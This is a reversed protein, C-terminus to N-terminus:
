EVLQLKKILSGTVPGLPGTSEAFYMFRAIVSSHSNDQFGELFVLALNNFSLQTRGQTMQTPSFLPVMIVRASNEWGAYDGTCSSGVLKKVAGGTWGTHNPNPSPAWCASPDQAILSDIGHATPGVMDGPKNPLSYNTGVSVGAPNCHGINWQYWNAGPGPSQGGYAQSNSSDYPMVFPYFFSPTGAQPNTIKITIPRGYDDWYLTHTADSGYYNNNRWGSGLGTWQSSNPNNPDEYRSYTDGNDWQWNEGGKKGQQGSIDPLRNAPNIDDNPDQWADPIAFPKVCKGTGANVAQAAAKVTIPVFDIGLMHGFWTATTARRIFVRVKYEAPIVQVYAEPSNGVYVSGSDTVIPSSTDVYKWGVYNQAAYNLAHKLAVDKQNPLSPNLFDQAGALAAADAARQADTRVKMLMGVDVALAVMVLLAALTVVLIAASVGRRGLGRREERM